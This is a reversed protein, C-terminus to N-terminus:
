EKKELLKLMNTKMYKGWICKIYLIHYKGNPFNKIVVIDTKGDNLNSEPSIKMDNGYQVSNAFAIFYVQFKYDKVNTKM